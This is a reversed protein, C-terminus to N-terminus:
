HDHNEDHDPPVWLQHADLLVRAQARLALLQASVEQQRAELAQRRVALLVAIDFEGLAYGRATSEATQQMQSDAAALEQWGRLTLRAAAIVARADAHVADRTQEAASAAGRAASRAL